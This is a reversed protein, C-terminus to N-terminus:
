YKRFVAVFFGEWLTSPTIRRTKSTDFSFAKGQWSKIGPQWAQLEFSPAVLEVEPGVTDLVWEVVGENEEPALTCTSYVITGGPATASIASRLLARQRKALNKINKESWNKYSTPKDAKFRGEMSCPVDVLSYEFVPPFEKWLLEGLGRRTQICSVGLRDMNAKLKYLRVLSTDNALIMGENEMMAALQSTKSGPAAAIDLVQAGATPSLLLPPVMSSLGQVYLRGQLYAPHDQLASLPSLLVYAGPLDSVPEFDFGAQRLEQQLDEATSRLTNVRFTSVRKQSFVDLISDAEVSYLEKLREIFRAPFPNKSM